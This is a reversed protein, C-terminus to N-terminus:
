ALLLRGNVVTDLLVSLKNRVKSGYEKSFVKWLMKLSSSKVIM